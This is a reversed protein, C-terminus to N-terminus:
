AGKDLLLVKTLQKVFERRHSVWRGPYPLDILTGRWGALHIARETNIRISRVVTLISEPQLQRIRRALLSEGAARAALRAPRDLQDVPYPSLDVLYCGSSQFVRLFDSDPTSPFVEHFAALMARYLGSDARYFFRGSAPPSEGVFLRRVRNPRYRRRIRERLLHATTSDSPASGSDVSKPPM